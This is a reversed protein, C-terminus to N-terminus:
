LVLGRNRPKGVVAPHGVAMFDDLHCWYESSGDSSKISNVRCM